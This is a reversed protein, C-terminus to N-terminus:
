QQNLHFQIYSSYSENLLQESEAAVTNFVLSSKGSGSRGTFVTVLHKPINVDINKLNNQSAGTINIFDM